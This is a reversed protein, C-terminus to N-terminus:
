DDKINLPKFSSEGIFIVLCIMFIGLGTEVFGLKNNSFYGYSWIMLIVYMCEKRLSIGSKHCLENVFEKNSIDIENSDNQVSMNENSANNVTKLEKDMRDKNTSESM